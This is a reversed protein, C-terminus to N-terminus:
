HDIALWRRQPLTVWEKRHGHLQLLGVSHHQKNPDALSLSGHWRLITLGHVAFPHHYPWRSSYTHHLRDDFHNISLFCRFCSRLPSLCSEFNRNGLLYCDQRVRLGGM